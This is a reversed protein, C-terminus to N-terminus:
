ARRTIFLGAGTAAAQSSAVPHLYSRQAQEHEFVVRQETVTTGLLELFSPDIDQYELRAGTGSGTLRRNNAFHSDIVRYHSRARPQTSAANGAGADARASAADQHTWAYNSNAVVNNRYDFDDAIGATWVASGYLGENVCHRMAHGTSGGSWYVASIKLGRFVCHHVVLGNGRAIIGVHNPAILEDGAFVCQAVELDDLDERLRSVAYLRRIMGSQPSEVVPTGLVRLGQLTVHSTEILMGDVAGGLADPRGNWSDKLPLTHILTPMRGHHWSPDDPLVEARITLRGAKTFSRREPKFLATEGVAYIGESLVVTLPGSGTSRSVRRAAEPLTQLPAGKDGSNADKGTVPNVYLTGDQSPQGVGVATARALRPVALAVAGLAAGRVFDRRQMM